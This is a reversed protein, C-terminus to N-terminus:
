SGATISMNAPLRVSCYPLMLRRNLPRKLPVPSAWALRGFILTLRLWTAAESTPAYVGSGKGRKSAGKQVEM